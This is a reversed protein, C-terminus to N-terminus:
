HRERATEPVRLPELANGFATLWLSQGDTELVLAGHRDTRHIAAGVEQCRRLVTPDPHGYRNHRGCSFVVWQPCVAQLFPVTTSSASGHHGAKLVTSRLSAPDYRKLIEAEAEADADGPLLLSFRRWQLRLVVSRTNRDGRFGEGVPDPHLVDIRLGPLNTQLRRGAGPRLVPTSRKDLLPQISEWIEANDPSDAFALRRLTFSELLDPLGGIHDGDAHTVLVLDVADLGQGRLVPELTYRTLGPPFQPGCDVLLSGGGPFQLLVCDGQGVDLFTVRLRDSTDPRLIPLWVLVAVLGYAHLLAASRRRAAQGPGRGFEMFVGGFLLGYWLAVMWHPFPRLTWAAHPIAAIAESIRLALHALLGAPLALLATLEPLLLAPGALAAGLLLIGTALPVVILNAFPAVVSVQQFCYALIPALVVQLITLLLLARLILRFQIRIWPRVGRHSIAGLPIWETVLPSFVIFTFVALFSLQFGVEFLSGPWLSLIVLAAFVLRSLQDTPRRLWGQLCLATVMIATRVVPLRFGVLGAYVFVGAAITLTRVRHPIPVPALLAYLALAIIGAHLGSVSFLHLLGSRRFVRYQSPTTEATDGLVIALLLPGATDGGAGLLQQRANQRWRALAGLFVRWMRPGGEPAQIQLDAPSEVALRGATERPGLPGDNSPTVPNRYGVQAPRFSGVAHIRDGRVVGGWRASWDSPDAAAPHYLSVSASAPLTIDSGAAHLRSGPAVTFRTYKDYRRPEGALTGDLAIMWHAAAWRAVDAAHERRQGHLRGSWAALFAVAM